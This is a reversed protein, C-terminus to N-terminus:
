TELDQKLKIINRIQPKYKRLLKPLRNLGKLAAKFSKYEGYVVGIMPTKKIHTQYIYINNIHAIVDSQQLFAELKSGGHKNAMMMLQITFGKDSANPLWEHTARTRQATLNGTGDRKAMGAAIRAKPALPKIAKEISAAQKPQAPTSQIPQEKLPTAKKNNTAVKAVNATHNMRTAVPTQNIRAASVRQDERQLPEKKTRSASPETPKSAVINAASIPPRKIQGAYVQQSSKETPSVAIPKSTGMPSIETAATEAQQSTVPPLTQSAHNFVFIAALIVLSAATAQPWYSLISISKLKSFESDKVAMLAHDKTIRHKNEAYAALLAKDALINIRRALGKSAKAFVKIAEPSFIDIGRYGVSFLRFRLYEAIDTVNFPSLYFSQTIRERLQRINRASLNDDLEPQGFLVMQLLKNQSTELNSLLRIEELTEVPMGQAEEIFCVVQQNNAHKELLAQQLAQMVSFRNADKALPLKMEFAIAHLIDDPSINPNALYVIEVNEPLKVELMRCLMTKGSGVEGVVKIIGEGSIVAYQIAGLIDGRTAGQYFLHTDPTIKFPAADLGYHEYYM